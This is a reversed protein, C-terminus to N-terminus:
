QDGKPPETTTTSITRTTKTGPDGETARRDPKSPDWQQLNLPNRTFWALVVSSLQMLLGGMHQVELLQDWRELHTNVLWGGISGFVSVSLMLISLRVQLMRTSDDAM